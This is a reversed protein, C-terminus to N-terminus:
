WWTDCGSQRQVWGDPGARMGNAESLSGRESYSSQASVHCKKKFIDNFLTSCATGIAFSPVAWVYSFVTDINIGRISTLGRHKMYIVGAKTSGGFIASCVGGAAVAVTYTYAYSNHFKCAITETTGAQRVALDTSANTEQPGADLIQQLLTQKMNNHTDYDFHYFDMFGGEDAEETRNPVIGSAEFARLIMGAPVFQRSVAAEYIPDSLGPAALSHSVLGAGSLVLLPFSLM